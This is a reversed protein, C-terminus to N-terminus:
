LENAGKFKKDTIDVVAKRKAAKLQQDADFMARKFIFQNEAFKKAQEYEGKINQRRCVMFKNGNVEDSWKGTKLGAIAQRIEPALEAESVVIKSASDACTGDRILTIEVPLGIRASLSEMERAIDDDTATINPGYVQMVVKQWAIHSAAALNLQDEASPAATKFFGKEKGSQLEITEISEAIEARSPNIKFQNAFELKAIDDMINALARRQLDDGSQGQLKMLAVRASVDIDTIPSGNFTAVVSAANAPLTFIAFLIFIIKRM